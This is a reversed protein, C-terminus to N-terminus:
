SPAKTAKQNATALPAAASKKATTRTTTRAAKKTAPKAMAHAARLADIAVLHAATADDLATRADALSADQESARAHAKEAALQAEDDVEQLQATTIDLRQQLQEARRRAEALQQTVADREGVAADRQERTTDLEARAAALATAAAAAEDAVRLWEGEAERLAITQAEHAAQLTALSTTLATAGEKDAERESLTSALLTTTAAHEDRLAAIAVALADAEDGRQGHELRLSTHQAQLAELAMQRQVLLDTAEALTAEIVIRVAGLQQHEDLLATHVRQLTTHEDRLAVLAGSDGALAQKTTTVQQELQQNNRSLEDLLAQMLHQEDRLATESATSTAVADDIADAVAREVAEQLTMAHRREAESRQQTVSVELEILSSTLQALEDRTAEHDRRERQADDRASVADDSASRAAQLTAALAAEADNLAQQTTRLAADVAALEASHKADHEAHWQERALAGSKELDEVLVMMKLTEDEAAAAAAETREARGRLAEREQQSVLLRAGNDQVVGQLRRVELSLATAAGEVDAHQQARTAVQAELQEIGTRATALDVVVAALERERAALAQQLVDRQATLDLLGGRSDDLQRRAEELQRQDHGRRQELQAKLETHQAALREQEATAAVQAADFAARVDDLALRLETAEAVSGNARAIANGVDHAAQLQVQELQTAAAACAEALQRKITARESVLRQVATALRQADDTRRSLAQQADDLANAALQLAAQLEDVADTARAAEDGAARAVEVAAAREDIAARADDLDKLAAELQLTLTAAHAEAADARDNVAGLREQLSARVRSAVTDTHDAAASGIARHGFLARGDVVIGAEALADQLETVVASNEAIAAELMDREAHQRLREHERLTQLELLEIQLASRQVDTAIASDELEVVRLNLLLLAEELDRRGRQLEGREGDVEVLQEALDDRQQRLEDRVALARVLEVERVGVQQESVLARAVAEDLRRALGTVLEGVDDSSVGDDDQGEVLRLQEELVAIRLDRAVLEAAIDVGDDDDSFSCDDRDANAGVNAGHETRDGFALASEQQRLPKDELSTRLMSTTAPRRALVADLLADFPVQVLCVDEIVPIANGFAFVYAGAPEAGDDMLTTQPAIGDDGGEIDFSGFLYGLMLSQFYVQALEFTGRLADVLPRYALRTPQPASSDLLMGLGRPTSSLATVAFGEPSLLRKIDTLRESVGAALAEPLTFDIVLDFAGDDGPLVSAQAIGPPRSGGAPRVARFDVRDLENDDRLRELLDRDDVACVVRTAGQELLFRAVAPSRAGVELVRRGEIMGELFILRSLQEPLRAGEVYLESKKM